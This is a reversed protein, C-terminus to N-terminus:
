MYFDHNKIASHYTRNNIIWKNEATKPNLFYLCDGVPNEGKLAAKAASISDSSPTNYVTGNMVSQFQVGYKKDFIVGYVTSPFEPSKVRNLIM